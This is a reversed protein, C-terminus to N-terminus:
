GLIAGSEESLAWYVVCSLWCSSAHHHTCSFDARHARMQQQGAMSAMHEGRRGSPTTIECPIWIAWDPDSPLSFGWEAIVERISMRVRGLTRRLKREARVASRRGVLGLNGIQGRGDTQECYSSSSRSPIVSSTSTMLKCDVPGASADRHMRLFSLYV